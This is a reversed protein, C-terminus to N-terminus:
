AILNEPLYSFTLASPLKTAFRQALFGLSNPFGILALLYNLIEALCRLPCSFRSENDNREQPTKERASASYGSTISSRSSAFPPSTPMHAFVGNDAHSWSARKLIVTRTYVDFNERIRRDVAADVLMRRLQTPQRIVRDRRGALSVRLAELGERM